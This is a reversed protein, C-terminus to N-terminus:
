KKEGLPSKPKPAVNPDAVLRVFRGDLIKTLYVQHLAQHNEKSLKIKEPLGIDLERLSEAAKFFTHSNMEGKVRQAIKVFVKANLYGELQSFSYQAPRYDKDSIGVPPVPHVSDVAARYERVLPITMDDFPPVVQSVILNNLIDKAGNQEFKKLAELMALSGVFSVNAIPVMLGAKRADRIFAACPAYVGVSIIADVNKNKLIAVQEAMSEDVKTGHRYTVEAETTLGYKALASEVGTAGARGYADNQIFVGIRKLGVSHFHDVLARTEENYSARVNFVFAQYPMERQPQAGTFNSFLLAGEKSYRQIVPLAKLLNPTGVYGFLILSSDQSLLQLTNALTKDANYSDDLSLVKIKRGAVGGKQNIQEFYADSGMWLEIGLSASAGTFAASQGLLIETAHSSEAVLLLVCLGLSRFLSM